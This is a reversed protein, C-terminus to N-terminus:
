IGVCPFGAVILRGMGGKGPRANQAGKSRIAGADGGSIDIQGTPEKKCTKQVNLRITGGAGGGSLDQGRTGRVSVVGALEMENAEIIIVGGGNGGRFTYREYGTELGGSGGGGPLDAIQNAKGGPGGEALKWSGRFILSIGSEGDTANGGGGGAFYGTHHMEGAQITRGDSNPQSCGATQPLVASGGPNGMGDASVRGTKQITLKGAVSLKFMAFIPGCTEIPRKTVPLAIPANGLIQGEVILDQNVVLAETVVLRAGELVHMSNFSGAFNEPITITTGSKIVVDGYDKKDALLTKSEHWFSKPNPAPSKSASMGAGILTIACFFRM